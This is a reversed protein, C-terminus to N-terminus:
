TVPLITDTVCWRKKYAKRKNITVINIQKEKKKKNIQIMSTIEFLM